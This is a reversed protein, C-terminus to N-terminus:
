RRLQTSPKTNDDGASRATWSIEDLDYTSIGTPTLKVPTLAPNITTAINAAVTEEWTGEGSTGNTAVFKVYYDDQSVDVSGKIKITFDNFAKAPLDTISGVDDYALGIGGDSLEDTVSLGVFASSQSIKIINGDLTTTLGSVGDLGGATGSYTLHSLSTGSKLVSLIESSKIETGSTIEAEFTAGNLKVTYKIDKAAQKIFILAQYTVAGSSGTLAPVTQNKNLLWTTDAVTIMKIADKPNSDNLYSGSLTSTVTVPTGDVKWMEVTDSSPPIVVVYREGTSGRDILGVFSSNGIDDLGNISNNLKKILRSNPRKILGEVVSSLANTQSEAQGAYRINSPQQSVGQSLNPVSTTILPM